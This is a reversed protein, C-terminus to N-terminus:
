SRQRLRGGRSTTRKFLAVSVTTPEVRALMRNKKGENEAENSFAFATRQPRTLATLSDSPPVSKERTRACDARLAECSRTPARANFAKSM